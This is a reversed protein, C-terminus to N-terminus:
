FRYKRSVVKGGEITHYYLMLGSLENDMRFYGMCGSNGASNAEICLGKLLQRFVDTSSLSQMLEKGFDNILRIRLHPAFTDPSQTPSYCVQFNPTYTLNSGDHSVNSFNYYTKTNDLHESLKYVKISVPQTIDVM